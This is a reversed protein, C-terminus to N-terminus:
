HGDGLIVSICLKVKTEQSLGQCIELLPPLVYLSVLRLFISLDPTQRIFRNQELYGNVQTFSFEQRVNKLHSTMAEIREEFDTLENQLNVKEKQM